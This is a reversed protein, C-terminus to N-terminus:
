PTPCDSLWACELADNLGCAWGGTVGKSCMSPQLPEPGCQDAPCPPESQHCTEKWACAGRADPDPQCDFTGMVERECSSQQPLDGCDAAVCRSDWGM